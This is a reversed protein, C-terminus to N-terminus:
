PGNGSKQPPAWRVDGEVVWGFEAQIARAMKGDLVHGLPGPYLLRAEAGARHTWGKAREAVARCQPQGCVFLMREGGRRAFLTAQTSTWRDAGGEILVARSFFSPEEILLDVGYIAGLSFGALVVPGPSVYGEFRQKLTGLAARLERALEKPSGYTYVETRGPAPVGRPCLVFVGTGAIGRWSGCQWEPRDARGHLAVVVPRPRTAGLPVTVSSPAFGPVELDIRWSVGGLPPLKRISASRASSAAPRAPKAVGPADGSKCGLFAALAITLAVSVGLGARRRTSERRDM